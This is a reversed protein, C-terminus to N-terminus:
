KIGLGAKLERDHRAKLERFVKSTDLGLIKNLKKCTNLPAKSIGREMFSVFQPTKHGLARAVESQSLGKSKRAELIMIGIKLDVQDIM